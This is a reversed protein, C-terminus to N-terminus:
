RVPLPSSLVRTGAGVDGIGAVGAIRVSTVGGRLAQEAAELKAAMGGSIVGREILEKADACELTALVVDGDLVGAVDAVLVLDDARLAAALAAAADDGNVNLGGGGDHEGADRALPSVIPVFGGALLHDILGSDVTVRGGVRGMQPDVVVARFLGADEGSVGVARVGATIMQAVIRKNTTGSLVMRVVDLDDASTVRRGGIFKPEVGLRRQLVSVEDGGGHVLCVADGAAVVSAIAGIVAPDSQARGGVKVVRKM